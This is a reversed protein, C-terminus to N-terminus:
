ARVLPLTNKLGFSPLDLWLDFPKEREGYLDKLSQAMAIYM